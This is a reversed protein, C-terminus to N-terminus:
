DVKQDSLFQMFNHINNKLRDQKAQMSRSNDVMWLIDVKGVQSQDFTDVQFPAAPGFSADMGGDGRSVNPLGQGVTPEGGVVEVEEAARRVHDSGCSIAAIVAVGIGLAAAVRMM